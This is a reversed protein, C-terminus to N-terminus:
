GELDADRPTLFPQRVSSVARSLLPICIGDSDDWEMNLLTGASVYEESVRVVRRFTTANLPVSTYIATPDVTRHASSRSHYAM